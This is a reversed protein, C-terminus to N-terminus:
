PRIHPNMAVLELILETAVVSNALLRSRINEQRPMNKLAPIRVNSIAATSMFVSFSGFFSRCSETCGASASLGVLKSSSTDAGCGSCVNFVLSAIPWKM